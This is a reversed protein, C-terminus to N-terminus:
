ILESPEEYWRGFRDVPFHFPSYLRDTQTKASGVGSVLLGRCCLVAQHREHSVLFAEKERRDQVAATKERGGRLECHFSGAKQSWYDAQTERWTIVCAGAM